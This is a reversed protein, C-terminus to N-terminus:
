AVAPVRKLSRVLEVATDYRGYSTIIYIGQVHDRAQEVFEQTILLGEERGHEGARKMREMVEDPVWMGPVENHLLEAHRYSELPLIGLVHPVPLKGARREFELLQEMTWMPQSMVFDAGAEIKQRLRDLEKEVNEPGPGPWACAVFFDARRGISKDAWDVGRNFRKLIAILGISDVDWVATATPTNGVRPPDGTLAVVNRIGNAHAGLLESQLAMLNRDRTTFHIIPEVGTERQMLLAMGISSMRVTAMPSDGINICDVGADRLVAAGEIAKRPNLGRPPDLEVSVVFDGRELKVRLTSGRADEPAPEAPPPPEAVVFSPRPRPADTVAAVLGAQMHRIHEPTTGCCGGILRAGAAAFRAAMEGHYDPTSVYILRGGVRAPLGANPQVSVPLHALAILERAVDLASAPGVGCNLGVVDVGLRELTQVVEAVTAGSAIHRDENFTMQAVLPLDTTERVALVAETIEALDYFTELVLLDVGGEVLAEAQERFALRVDYLSLQGVPEIPKDVPGISGAVFVSEGAIERAERANKVARRNLDRVRNELGYMSLRIRNAGFTNTEILEAGAAIYERHIQQVLDPQSANVEDFCQEYPIGRSYLMTGMAGDALMPGRSLRELFPHPV